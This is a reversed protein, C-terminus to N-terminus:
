QKPQAQWAEAWRNLPKLHKVLELGAPTLGYGSEGLEVIGAERLEKLRDNLVSPSMGDASDRLLRFSQGHGDRLEWLLRLTGRRGLLDLLAMVPRGTRSGRVPKGPLPPSTM